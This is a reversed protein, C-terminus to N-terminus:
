RVYRVTAGRRLFGLASFPARRQATSIAELGLSRRTQLRRPLRLITSDCRWALKPSGSCRAIRPEDKHRPGFYSDSVGLREAFERIMQLSPVREGKEILSVYAAASRDVLQESDDTRDQRDIKPSRGTDCRMSSSPSLM